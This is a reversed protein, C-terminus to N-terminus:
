CRYKLLAEPSFSRESFDKEKTSWVCTVKGIEIENITMLTQFRSFRDSKLIVIDGVKLDQETDMINCAKDNIDCCEM